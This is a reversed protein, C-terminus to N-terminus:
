DTLYGETDPISLHDDKRGRCARRGGRHRKVMKHGYSQMTPLVSFAEVPKDPSFGIKLVEFTAPDSYVHTLSEPQNDVMVLDGVRLKYAPVKRQAGDHTVNLVRHDATVELKAKETQLVVKGRKESVEPFDAVEMISGDAALIKSGKSLDQGSVFGGLAAKFVADTMFCRGATDISIGSAETMPTCVEWSSDPQSVDEADCKECETHLQEVKSKFSHAAALLSKFKFENKKLKENELQLQQLQLTLEQRKSEEKLRECESEEQRKRLNECESELQQMQLAQEQRISEEEKLRLSESEEQRERLNECESQLQQMQLAHEQRQSEQKLHLSESEEQKKKLHDCELQLQQLQLTVAQRQSEEEKLHECEQTLQQVQMHLEDQKMGFKACESQIEQMQREHEERKTEEEKLRSENEEQGKRLDKCLSQIEQLQSEHEQRKSEEEKLRECEHTLEQVQIHLENQKTKLNGNNEKQAEEELRTM